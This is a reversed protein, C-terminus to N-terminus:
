LHRLEKWPLRAVPPICNMNGAVPEVITYLRDAAMSPSPKVCRTWITLCVPSRTSPSIPRYAQSNPQGLTLAGSGAKVLLSDAHGHYCGEFKVIKDRGTYGRALPHREHDGRHRLSWGCRSWPPVIQRVKEAMLVEIETPM